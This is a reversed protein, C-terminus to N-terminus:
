TGVGVSGKKTEVARKKRPKLPAGQIRTDRQRVMGTLRVEGHPISIAAESVHDSQALDACTVPWLPYVVEVEVEEAAAAAGGGGGVVVVVVVVM